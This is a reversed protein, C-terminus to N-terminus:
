APVGNREDLTKVYRPLREAWYMLRELRLAHHLCVRMKGFPTPYLPERRNVVFRCEVCAQAPGIYPPFIPAGFDNM